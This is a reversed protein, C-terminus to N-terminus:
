RIFDSFLNSPKASRYAMRAIPLFQLGSCVQQTRHRLERPRHCVDGSTLDVLGFVLLFHRYRLSPLLKSWSDERSISSM